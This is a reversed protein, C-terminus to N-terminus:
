TLTFNDSASIVILASSARAGRGRSRGVLPVRIRADVQSLTRSRGSAAASGLLTIFERRKVAQASSKLSVM